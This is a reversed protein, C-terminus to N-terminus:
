RGLIVNLVDQRSQSPIGSVNLPNDGYSYGNRAVVMWAFTEAFDEVPKKQSYVSVGGRVDILQFGQDRVWQWGAAKSWSSSSSPVGANFDLVHGLEHITDDRDTVSGNQSLNLWITNNIACGGAPQGCFIEVNSARIITLTGAKGLGLASLTNDGVLNNVLGLADLVDRLNRSTWGNYLAVESKFNVGAKLWKVLDSLEEANWAGLDSPTSWFNMKEVAERYLDWCTMDPINPNSIDGACHGSPDM